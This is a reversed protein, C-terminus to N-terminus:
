RSPLAGEMWVRFRVVKSRLNGSVHKVLPSAYRLFGEYDRKVLLVSVLSWVTSGIIKSKVVVCVVSEM